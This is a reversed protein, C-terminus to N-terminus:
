RSDSPGRHHDADDGPVDEAVFADAPIIGCDPCTWSEPLDERRTGPSFGEHADGASESYRYGCEPCRWVTM